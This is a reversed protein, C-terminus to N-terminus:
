LFFFVVCAAHYAEVVYITRLIISYGNL